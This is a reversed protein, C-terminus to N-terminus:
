WSKTIEESIIVAEEIMKVFYFKGDKRFIKDAGLYEKWMTLLPGPPISAENVEKLIEYLEDHVEM